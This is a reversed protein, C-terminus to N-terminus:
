ELVFCVPLFSSQVRNCFSIRTLGCIKHTLPTQKKITLSSHKQSEAACPPAHDNMDEYDAGTCMSLIKLRGSFPSKPPKLLPSFNKAEVVPVVGRAGKVPSRQM